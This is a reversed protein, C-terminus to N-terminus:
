LSVVMVDYDNGSCSGQRSISFGNEVLYRMVFSEITHSIQINTSWAYCWYCKNFSLTKCDKGHEDAWKKTEYDYVLGIELSTGRKNVFYDNIFKDFANFDFTKQWEERRADKIANASIM